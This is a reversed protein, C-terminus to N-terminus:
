FMQPIGMAALTNYGQNSMKSLGIIAAAALLKEEADTTVL